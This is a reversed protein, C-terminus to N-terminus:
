APAAPAPPAPPPSPAPSPPVRSARVAAALRDVDRRATMWASFRLRQRQGIVIAAREIELEAFTGYRFRRRTMGFLNQAKVEGGELVLFPRTLYLVGLLVTPVALVLALWSGTVAFVALEAAALGLIVLGLGRSYGIVHRATM